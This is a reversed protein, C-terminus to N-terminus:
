RITAATESKPPAETAVINYFAVEPDGFVTACWVGSVGSVPSVDIEEEDRAAYASSLARTQETTLGYPTGDGIAAFWKDVAEAPSEAIFQSISTLGEYEVILTYLRSGSVPYQM